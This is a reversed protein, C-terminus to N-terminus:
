RSSCRGRGQKQKKLSYDRILNEFEKFPEDTVSHIETIKHGSIM